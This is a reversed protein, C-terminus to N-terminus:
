TPQGTLVGITGGHRITPKRRGSTAPAASKFNRV